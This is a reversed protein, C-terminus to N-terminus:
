ERVCPDVRPETALVALLRDGLARRAVPPLATPMTQALIMIVVTSVRAKAFRAVEAIGAVSTLVRGDTAAVEGERDRVAGVSDQTVCQLAWPRQSM